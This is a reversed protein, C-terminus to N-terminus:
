WIRRPTNFGTVSMVATSVVPTTAPVVSISLRDGVAVADSSTTISCTTGAESIACTQGSAITNIDMTFTYSQTGAGNEPATRLKVYFAHVQMANMSQDTSTETTSNSVVGLIRNFKTLTANTNFAGDRLSLIFEGDVNPVFVMGAAVKAATPALLSPASSITITDGAVVTFTNSLDSCTTAAESVTCTVTTNAINKRVTFIYSQTGVGTDPAANLFIYLKKITGATPILIEFQTETAGAGTTSDVSMPSFYNTVTTSLTTFSGGGGLLTEGQTTSRFDVVGYFSSAAPTGVITFAYEVKDGAAVSVTNTLDTCSTATESVTCTIASASGNVNMTVQVSQTGVGNDPAVTLIFRFQYFLGASAALMQWDEATATAATRGFVGTYQTVTPTTTRGFPIVQDIAWAYAPRLLFIVTCWVALFRRM